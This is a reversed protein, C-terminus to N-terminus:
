GKRIELRGNGSRVKVVPGNGTGIPGRLRSEVLRGQVRVEFDTNISGNGTSADVEGNFDAPLTVKVRGNGTSITMSTLDPNAPLTSMKVDVDGNGSHADVPGRGTVVVVNGSGTSAKVPAGAAAVTIEGNGTWLTARGISERVVIDGNGTNVDVEAVPQMVIVDGNGTTARLRIGKPLDVIYAVSVRIDDWSNDNGCTTGGRYFTCIEIDNAAPERVDFTVDAANGRPQVRIIARIEVRDSTGERVDIPGILNRIALRSGEPLRRSWSFATDRQATAVSTAAMLFLATCLISKRM